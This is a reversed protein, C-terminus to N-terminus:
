RMANCADFFEIIRSNKIVLEAEAERLLRRVKVALVPDKEMRTELRRVGQMVTKHDRDFLRGLRAYSANTTRHIVYMAVQRPHAVRYSADRGFMEDENLGFRRAIKLAFYHPPSTNIDPTM